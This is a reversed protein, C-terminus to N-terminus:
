FAPKEVTEFVARIRRLFMKTKRFVTKTKGLIESIKRFVIKM